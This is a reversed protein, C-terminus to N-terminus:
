CEDGDMLQDMGSFLDGEGTNYLKIIPITQNRRRIEEEMAKEYFFSSLIIMDLSLGNVEDVGFVRKNEYAENGNTTIYVVKANIKGILKRYMYLLGKTHKGVGYVGITLNKDLPIDNLIAKYGSIIRDKGFPMSIGGLAEMEFRKALKYFRLMEYLECDNVSGSLYNYYEDFLRIVTEKEDASLEYRGKINMEYKDLVSAMMDSFHTGYVKDSYRGSNKANRFEDTLIKIFDTWNKTTYTSLVISGQRARRKYLKNRKWSAMNALTMAFFTFYNDEYLMGEPFWLGNEKLYDTKYVAMCASEYYSSPYLLKFLEEGTVVAGEDIGVDRSYDPVKNKLEEEGFVDGCFCLYDVANRNLYDKLVEVTTKDLMDDSDVFLVYDTSLRRLGENRVAGLGSHNIKAAEINHHKKEYERLIDISDDESEDDIAIIKDFPITQNVLSDLCERLWTETNYVPVIASISIVKTM